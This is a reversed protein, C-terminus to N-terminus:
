RQKVTWSSVIQDILHQNAVFCDATCAVEQWYLHHLGADVVSTQEVRVAKSANGAHLVIDFVYRSGFFTKGYSLDENASVISVTGQQVGQDLNYLLDRMAGLSLGDREAASLDRQFAFVIPADTVPSLVHQISPHAASDYGVMWKIESEAGPSHLGQARLMAATGYVHWDAPVRFYAQGDASSAFEFGSGACSALLAGAMAAAIPVVVIRRM